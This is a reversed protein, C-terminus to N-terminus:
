LANNVEWMNSNVSVDLGLEQLHKVFCLEIDTSTICRTFTLCLTEFTTTATLSYPTTSNVSIGFAANKVYPRMDEPLNVIGVNSLTATKKNKGIFLNSIKFIFQKLFLPMIRMPIFKEGRVTTSIKKSLTEKDMDRKLCEHMRKILVDMDMDTKPDANVRSFLSFNKLTKSGFIKRLNIPCMLSIDNPDQVQDKIQAEYISLIYIAGLLETLTCGKSKSIALIDKINCYLHTIGVGGDDFMIGNILYAKKGKMSNIDLDKLKVKKYNTLFSDELEKPDIPSGVTLIKHDSHINHGQLNLYTYVLSKMFEAGGSGDCIAHFFDAVILNRYYSIRFCYEHCSTHTFKRMAVPDLPYVEPKMDNYDFYYWFLGKMLKVKFSPFRELTQELAQQLFEPEVEQKMFFTLRFINQNKKNSMMPYIKASNDLRYWKQIKKAM